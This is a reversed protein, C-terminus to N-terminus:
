RALTFPISSMVPGRRGPRLLRGPTPLFDLFAPLPSPNGPVEVSLPRDVVPLSGGPDSNALLDMAPHAKEKQGHLWEIIQLTRVM